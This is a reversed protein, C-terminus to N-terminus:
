QEHTKELREETLRPRGVAGKIISSEDFFRMILMNKVFIVLYLLGKRFIETEHRDKERSEAYTSSFEEQIQKFFFIVISHLEFLNIAAYINQSIHLHNQSRKSPLRYHTKYAVGNSDLGVVYIHVSHRHVVAAMVLLYDKNDEKSYHSYVTLMLYLIFPVKSSCVYIRSFNFQHSIEANKHTITILIIIKKRRQNRM